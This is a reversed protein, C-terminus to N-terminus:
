LRTWLNHGFSEDSKECYTCGVLRPSFPHHVIVELKKDIRHTLPRMNRKLNSRILGVQLSIFGASKFNKM